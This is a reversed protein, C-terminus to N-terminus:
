SDGKHFTFRLRNDPLQYLHITINVNKGDARLYERQEAPQAPDPPFSFYLTNWSNFDTGVQVCQSEWPETGNRVPYARFGWLPPNGPLAFIVPEGHGVEREVPFAEDPFVANLQRLWEPDLNDKKLEELGLEERLTELRDTYQISNPEFWSLLEAQRAMAEALDPKKESQYRRAMVIAADVGIFYREAFHEYFADKLDHNLFHRRFALLLDQSANSALLRELLPPYEEAGFRDIYHAFYRVPEGESTQSLDGTATRAQGVWFVDEGRSMRFYAIEQGRREIPGEWGAEELAQQFRTAFDVPDATSTMTWVSHNHNLLGYNTTFLAVEADAPFPIAPTDAMPGYLFDPFVTAPGHKKELGKFSEVVKAHLNEAIEAAPRAYRAGSLELGTHVNSFRVKIDGGLMILPPAYNDLVTHNGHYPTIGVRAVLRGAAKQRGPLSLQEFEPLSLLMYFDYAREGPPPGAGSPGWGIREIATNTALHEQLARATEHLLPHDELEQIWVSSFSWASNGESHSFGMSSSTTIESRQVGLHASLGAKGPTDLAGTDPDRESIVAHRFPL